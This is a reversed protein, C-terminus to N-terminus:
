KGSEFLDIKEGEALQVIAKKKGASNISRVSLVKVEFLRSVADKIQGKTARPDVWFVYKGQSNGAAAKETVVPGKILDSLRM